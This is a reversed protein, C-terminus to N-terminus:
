QRTSLGREWIFIKDTSAFIQQFASILSKGYLVIERSFQTQILYKALSQLKIFFDFFNRKHM